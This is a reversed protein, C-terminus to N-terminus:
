SPFCDDSENITIHGARKAKQIWRYSTPRACGTKAMIQKSLESMQTAPKCMRGIEAESILPPNPNSGAHLDRKWQAVDVTEDCEYILTEGNLRVAFPDFEKGDSCKACSVILSDNDDETAPVINIQARTWNFLVKSNRAFSARDFGMSKEIGTRGTLAHHAVIYGRHPNRLKSLRGIALCVARMDVDKNLDGDSYSYLPDWAIIDPLLADITKEIRAVTEPNELGMMSDNDKLPCLIHVHQAVVRFGDTGLWASLREREQQLRRVSNETQLILWRLPRPQSRVTFNLFRKGLTICAAMQNIMRSKGAGGQAAIVLPQGKALLYDGLILDSEHSPILAIEDFTLVSLPLNLSRRLIQEVQLLNGSGVHLDNFDTGRDGEPFQPCAVEGNVARAAETADTLGPNTLNGSQDKTFRDNDAALIIQRNPWRKRAAQAVAKLNGRAMAAWCAWQTAVHISAGTAYGECIVLPGDERDCLAHYCGQIRGQYMFKKTGDSAIYQLSHLTGTEDRLPITLWEPYPDEMCIGVGLAPVQKRQLYPHKDVAAGKFCLTWIAEAKKRGEAHQRVQEAARAEAAQKWQIRQARSEEATLTAGNTESWKETIGRRWCGFEGGAPPGPFLIYWGSQDKDEGSKFRHMKGDVQVSAPPILGKDKLAACFTSITDSM